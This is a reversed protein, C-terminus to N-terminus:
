QNYPNSEAIVQKRIAKLDDLSTIKRAAPSSTQGALTPITPNKAGTKPAVVTNNPNAPAIDGVLKLVEKVAEEASLDQKKTQFAFQARQIVESKFAGVQNQRADFKEVIAKVDPRDLIQALETERQVVAAQTGQAKIGELEQKYQDALQELTYLQKQTASNKTYLEQQEPPLDKLRLKNLMWNQLDKEDVKLLDFFSDYDKNQLYKNAVDVGKSLPIYKENLIKEFNGNAERLKENKKQMVDLGYAKSFIQKFEKENKENIFGQFEKPIEYEADYAKVKYNPSYVKVETSAPTEATSVSKPSVIIAPASAPTDDIMKAGGGTDFEVVESPSSVALETSLEEM